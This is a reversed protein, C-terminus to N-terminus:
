NGYEQLSFQLRIYNSHCRNHDTKRVGRQNIGNIM